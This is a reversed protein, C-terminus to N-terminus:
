YVNAKIQASQASDPLTQWATLVDGAELPSLNAGSVPVEWFGSSPVVTSVTHQMGDRLISLHVTAGAIGGGYVTNSGVPYTHLSPVPTANVVTVSVKGSPERQYEMQRFTFTSGASFPGDFAYGWSGDETVPTQVELGEPPLIWVTAGPVGRGSVVREHAAIPHVIPQESFLVEEVPDNVFQGWHDLYERIWSPMEQGYNEGGLSLYSDILSAMEADSLAPPEAMAVSAAMWAALM